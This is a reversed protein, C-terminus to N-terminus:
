IAMIGIIFILLIFVLNIALDGRALPISEPDIWISEVNVSSSWREVHNFASLNLDINFLTFIISPKDFMGISDRALVKM